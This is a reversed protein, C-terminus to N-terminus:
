SASFDYWKGVVRKGLWGFFAFIVVGFLSATIIAAFLEASQVRSQYNSILSGLGPEGRRFFYDGVIAGVVALGASIRMGAFIAPLAAPFELKTLVTWRSAKQLQFLERQGKDVSQLGFLTNSVMPFLAIMVCVIIRAPYDFGFWFGILPVLALIPICQLIVAYPFTSREIWRAQSMAVAWAIGIVIAIALGVLAVVATRGLAIMIDGFVDPQFFAETFIEHPPPLLFRRKEDLFVYSVLYWLAIIGLAVLIPPVWTASKKRGSTVTAPRMLTRNKPPAPPTTTM